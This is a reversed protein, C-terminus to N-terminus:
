LVGALPDRNFGGRSRVYGLLTQICEHGTRECISILDAGNEAAATVMGSRLSHAGYRAPDIGAKKLARKVVHCILDPQCPRNEPHPNRGRFPLFLPGHERGRVAIWAEIQVAGAEAPTAMAPVAERAFLEAALAFLNQRAVAMLALNAAFHIRELNEHMVARAAQDRQAPGAM